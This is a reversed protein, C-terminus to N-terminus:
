HDHHGGGDTEDDGDTGEDGAPEHESHDTVSHDTVADQQAMWADVDERPEADREHLMDRMLMVEGFQANVMRQAAAHVQPASGDALAAEAMEVGSIHHTTMLQLFLVEAERDRADTLEQIEVPSAMGPMSVGPPLDMAAHDHEMWAMRTGDGARPLGWDELWTAMMGREFAQNNAIDLALRSVAEDETRQMVLHSMEIAQAHHEGMDRAFGADVSDDSPSRDGFALWGLLVGLCLGVVTITALVPAGFSRWRERSPLRQGGRADLAGARDPGGTRDQGAAGEVAGDEVVAGQDVPGRGEGASM